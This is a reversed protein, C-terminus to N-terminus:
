TLIMTSLTMKTLDRLANKSFDKLSLGKNRCLVTILCIKFQRKSYFLVFSEEYQWVPLVSVSTSSDALLFCLFLFFLYFSDHKSTEKALPTSFYVRRLFSSSQYYHLSIARKFNLCEKLSFLM